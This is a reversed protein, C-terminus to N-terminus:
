SNRNILALLSGQGISMFLLWFFLHSCGPCAKPVDLSLFPSSSSAWASAGNQIVLFAWIQFLPLHLCWPWPLVLSKAWDCCHIPVFFSGALKRSDRSDRWIWQLPKPSKNMDRLCQSTWQFWSLDPFRQAHLLVKLIYDSLSSLM